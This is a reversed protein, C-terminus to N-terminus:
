LYKEEATNNELVNVINSKVHNSHSYIKMLWYQAISIMSDGFCWLFLSTDIHNQM